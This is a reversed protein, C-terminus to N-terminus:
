LVGDDMQKYAHMAGDSHPSHVQSISFVLKSGLAKVADQSGKLHVGALDLRSYKANIAITGSIDGNTVTLDAYEAYVGEEKGLIDTDTLTARSNYVHLHGIRANRITIGSCDRLEISRYDGEFIMGSDNKCIGERKSTMAPKSPMPQFQEMLSQESALLHKRVLTNTQEIQDQMPEHGADAIIELRAHPMRGALVKGTRQPVTLDDDGWLILTPETVSTVAYSFDEGALELAAIKEPGGQLVQDRGLASNAIDIPSIPLKDVQELIKGSLREAFGRTQKVGSTRELMSGAQFKSIVQPHLIGAADILVLRRFRLPRQAAFRLAIAGGMSHGVIHYTKDHFYRDALFHALRAYRTPSYEQSGKDSKGFGPLDFALVHFDKALAPLTNKWDETSGGLGHILIVGIRAERNAQVICVKGEFVPEQICEEYAGPIAEQCHAAPLWTCALLGLIIRVAVNM